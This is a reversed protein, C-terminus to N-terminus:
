KDIKNNLELLIEGLGVPIKHSLIAKAIYEGLDKAEERTM